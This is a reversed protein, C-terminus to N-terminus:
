NRNRPTDITATSNNLLKRTQMQVMLALLMESRKMSLYLDRDQMLELGEMAASQRDVNTKGEMLNIHFAPSQYLKKTLVDMQAYYSPKDGLQTDAQSETMGLEKYLAEMYDKSSGSGQAKLGAIAAYSNQAVGRAAAVSRIKLYVGQNGEERLQSETLQGPIQKNGYLNHSLLIIDQQGPRMEESTLGTGFDLTGYNAFTRAFDIDRNKRSDRPIDEFRRQPDTGCMLAMGNNNDSADCYEQIFINMREMQDSGAGSQAVSGQAGLSRNLSLSALAIQAGKSSTDSTALGLSLSGYRCLAESTSYDNAAKAAGKQIEGQARIQTQANLFSGLSTTQSIISQVNRSLMSRLSPDISDNWLTDFLFSKKGEGGRRHKDMEKSLNTQTTQCPCCTSGNQGCYLNSPVVGPYCPVAGTCAASSSAFTPNLLTFYSITFVTLFIKMVGSPKTEFKMM